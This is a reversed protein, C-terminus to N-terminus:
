TLLNFHNLLGKFLKPDNWPICVPNAALYPSNKDRLYEDPFLAVTRETQQHVPQKIVPVQGKLQEAFLQLLPSSFETSAQLGHTPRLNVEIVSPIVNDEQEIVDLGGFGSFGLQGVLSSLADMWAPRYVSKVVTSPGRDAMRQVPQLVDYGLLRGKWAAFNITFEQGAVPQQIVLPHNEDPSVAYGKLKKIGKSLEEENKAYIVGNGGAEFSLKFYSPYSCESKIAELEAWGTISKYAPTQFGSQKATELLYPRSYYTTKPLFSRELLSLVAQLNKSLENPQHRLLERVSLLNKLLNEDNTLLFDANTKGLAFAMLHALGGLTEPLKDEPIKLLHSATGCQCLIRNEPALVSCPVAYQRFLAPLRALSHNNQFDIFLLHV